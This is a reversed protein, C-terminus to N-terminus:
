DHPGREAEAVEDGREALRECMDRLPRHNIWSADRLATFAQAASLSDREMMVGTAVAIAERSRLGDALRDAFSTGRDDALATALVTAAQSAFADAWECEHKAFAGPQRSYINLAGLTQGSAKLPTSLICAIGRARARPVFDPWRLEDRLQEIHFREGRNAADLCPGQSTAYQDGDMKLVVDNSFAVTGLRGQRPLTISVGDAGTIVAQAMTVVLALAADLVRRDRAASASETITRVFAGDPSDPTHSEVTVTNDLQAAAFLRRVAAPTDRVLLHAGRAALRRAALELVPVLCLGAFQVGGIDLVVSPLDAAIGEDLVAQFRPLSEVDIEGIVTVTASVLPDDVRVSGFFRERGGPQGEVDTLAFRAHMGSRQGATSGLRTPVPQASLSEDACIFDAPLWGQQSAFTLLWGIQRQPHTPCVRWGRAVLADRSESLSRMGALDMFTLRSLDLQVTGAAPSGPPFPESGAGAVAALARTLTPGTRQDLEGALSIVVDGSISDVADIDVVFVDAPARLRSSFTHM